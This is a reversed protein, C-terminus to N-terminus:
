LREGSLVFHTRRHDNEHEFPQKCRAGYVRSNRVIWERACLSCSYVTIMAKPSDEFPRSKGWRELDAALRRRGGEVSADCEPKTCVIQNGPPDNPGRPYFYLTLPSGCRKCPEDLPSVHRSM